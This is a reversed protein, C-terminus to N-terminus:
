AEATVLTRESLLAQVRVEAETEMISNVLVQHGDVADTASTYRWVTGDFPGGEVTTEWLVPPGPRVAHNLSLFMTHVRTGSPLRDEALTRDFADFWDRWTFVHDCPLPNGADDLIYLSNLPM